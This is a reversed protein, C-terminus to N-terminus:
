ATGGILSPEIGGLPPLQQLAEPAPATPGAPLAGPQAQPPPLVDLFVRRQKPVEMAEYMLDIAQNFKDLQGSQMAPVAVNQLVFEAQDIQWNRDPRRASTAEIRIQFERMVTELDTKAADRWVRGATVKVPQALVLAGIGQGYMTVEQAMAAGEEETDFYTAAEPFFQALEEMALNKMGGITVDVAWGFSKARGIVKEVDEPDLFFRALIAERRAVGSMWDEVQFAMDEVRLRSNRDKIEAERASRLQSRTQGYLLEGLGTRQEFLELFFRFMTMLDPTMPPPQLFDVMNRLSEGPDNADLTIIERDQGERIKRQNEDSMTGKVGVLERANNKVKMLMLSALFNMTKQEGFAQKMYCLPWPDNPKTIFDLFGHFWDGDMFLPAPWDGIHLPSELGEAVIVLKEDVQDLKRLAQPVGPARFGIGMRSFIEWYVVVDSSAGKRVKTEDEPDRFESTYDRASFESATDDEGLASDTRAARSKRLEEASDPFLDEVVWLPECRRRAVWKAQRADKADPDLVIDDVSVWESTILGTDADYGSWMVGRGKILAENIAKRAEEKLSPRAENPTYNLYAELVKAFAQMVRDESSTTVTRVPNKHYLAPGIVSVVEATKNITVRPWRDWDLLESEQFAHEHPGDYFQLATKADENFRKKRSRGKNILRRWIRAVAKKATESEAM